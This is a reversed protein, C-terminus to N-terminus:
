EGPDSIFYQLHIHSGTLVRKGRATLVIGLFDCSKPNIWIRETFKHFNFKGIQSCWIQIHLLEGHQSQCVNVVACVHILKGVTSLCTSVLM